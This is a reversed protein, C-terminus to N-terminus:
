GIYGLGKLAARISEEEEESYQGRAGGGEGLPEGVQVPREAVAPELAATLVRGDVDAPVPWGAAHLLTPAIDIITAGEVEVGARVGPGHLVLVGEMRHAGSAHDLTRKDTMTVLTDQRTGGYYIPDTLFIVDPANEVFPGAYLEERRYVEQVIPRGDHPDRLAKLGAIIRDRVAEYGAGPEVTGQAQRGRLNVVIGCTPHYVPSFFAQTRPWDITDGLDRVRALRKHLALPLRQLVLDKIPLVRFALRVLGMLRRAASVNGREVPALLGARRLFANPHFVRTPYHGAGHDSVVAVIWGGAADFVKGLARDIEEYYHDILHGYKAAQKPDYTPYSPERHKWLKHQLYDPVRIVGAVLDYEGSRVFRELFATTKEIEYDAMPLILEPKVRLFEERLEDRDGTQPKPISPPMLPGVEDAFEPPWTYARWPDPTPFGGVMVGNIPWVPTTMPVGYSAVRAGRKGLFDLITQGAIPQSNTPQGTKPQYKTLDLVEPGYIGHKGPNKGTLLSPFAPFTLPPITSRLEGRVGQRILRALNPLRGRALLPDIVTFTAADLGILLVRHDAM